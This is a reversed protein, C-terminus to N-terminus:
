GEKLIKPKFEDYPAVAGDVLQWPVPPIQCKPRLQPITPTCIKSAPRSTAPTTRTSRWRWPEAAEPLHYTGPPTHEQHHRGGSTPSPVSQHRPPPVPPNDPMPEQIEIERAEEEYPPFEEM